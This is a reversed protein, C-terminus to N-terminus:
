ELNRANSIRIAKPSNKKGLARLLMMSQFPSVDMMVAGTTLTVGTIIEFPQFGPRRIYHNDCSRAYASMLLM